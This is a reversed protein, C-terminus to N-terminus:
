KVSKVALPPLPTGGEGWGQYRMSACSVRRKGVGKEKERERRLKADVKMWGKKSKEDGWFFFM